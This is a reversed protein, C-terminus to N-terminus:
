DWAGPPDETACVNRLFTNSGLGDWYCEAYPSSPDFKRSANNRTVLCASTTQLYISPANFALSNFSIVCSVVDIAMIGPGSVYSVANKTITVGSAAVAAIGEGAHNRVTNNKIETGDTAGTVFIGQSGNRVLNNMVVNNRAPRPPGPADWAWPPGAGLIEIAYGYSYELINNTVLGNDARMRIGLACGSIKFGRVRVGDAAIDFCPAVAFSEELLIVPPIGVLSLNAVDVLVNEYYTGPCVAVEDGPIAADVAEQITDHESAGGVTAPSCTGLPNVFRDFASAGAPAAFLLIVTFLAITRM